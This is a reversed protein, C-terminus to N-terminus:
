LYILGILHKMLRRLLLVSKLFVNMTPAHGVSLELIPVRQPGPNVYNNVWLKRQLILPFVRLLNFLEFLSSSLESVFCSM